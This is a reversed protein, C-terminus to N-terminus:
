LNPRRLMKGHVSRYSPLNGLSEASVIARGVARTLCDAALLGIRSVTSHWPEALARRATSLAFVTDGDYLSHLPRIARALGDHAMIAVRGAQAKDLRVDTAVVALTTAAGIVAHFRHDLAAAGPATLPPPQGGMEDDLEFPWAWLASSGPVVVQGNCNVIVLAGVTFGEDAVISASGLGGKLRGAHAGFGAGINGLRFESGVNSCAGQALARYPPEDGWAKDGGNALDFLIAGPVLPVRAAGVALGRGQLHLWSVVGSAAALGFASGGALAIAHVEHVLCNPDLLATEITGPAGGRIDVAAVVPSDPLVITVGTRVRADEANAVQLGAVDTLLNRPGPKLM